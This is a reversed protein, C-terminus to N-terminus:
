EDFVEFGDVPLHAEFVDLDDPPAAREVRRELLSVVGPLSAVDRTASEDADPQQSALRRALVRERRTNVEGRKWATLLDHVAAAPDVLRDEVAALRRAYDVAESSFPAGLGAAHEWTLEHWSGDVPDRFWATRVDHTDVHIPWKGGHAGGYSSTTLRYPNLGPGDYRLGRVEVGYHNLRRWEVDLFEFSLDPNLPFTVSGTRALGLEFMQVPTFRARPVEPLALGDHESHHYVTAVWERIIQELESVYYFAGSEVDKGRSYVDPGKYGTLHQLLSQRLTKFFREVTPKDTPKGPTAPQVCIGLRACAGIVHASMYQKGHDVVITEPLVAPRGGIREQHVGDPVETGVLVNTPVGHYPWETGAAEQPRVCQFLVNAVDAAKSSVPTLRLGLICRSFLDMAVTLKVAVWRCTVPEMAFVDLDNTDLVVYQGPRDARLRGLVGEPREAVSRRSKASGFTHRGKDLVALRRYASARHPLAVDTGHVAVVQRNVEDIVAARTPTSSYTHSRLAALCAEDWRPDIKPERRELARSDILGALGARRYSAVWRRVTRVDVGLATATSEMRRGWQGDGDLLQAIARGHAELVERAGPTLASLAVSGLESLDSNLEDVSDHLSSLGDALRTLSVRQFRSGRRIVVGDIDVSDVQWAEGQWWAQAGVSVDVTGVQSMM